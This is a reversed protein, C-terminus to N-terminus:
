RYNYVDAHIHLVRCASTHARLTSTKKKGKTTTAKMENTHKDTLQLKGRKKSKESIRENKQTMQKHTKAVEDAIKAYRQM